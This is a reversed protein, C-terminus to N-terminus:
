ILVFRTERPFCNDDNNVPSKSVLRNEDAKEPVETKRLQLFSGYLKQGNLHLLFEGMKEEDLSCIIKKALNRIEM